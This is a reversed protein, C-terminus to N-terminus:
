EPEKQSPLDAVAKLRQWDAAPVVFRARAGERTHTCPLPHDQMPGKQPAMNCYNNCTPGGPTCRGPGADKAHACVHGGEVTTPEERVSIAVDGNELRNISVYGPYNGRPTTHAFINDTM